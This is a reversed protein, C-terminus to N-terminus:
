FDESSSNLVYEAGLEHLMKVHEERRVVNVLPYGYERCYKIMQKGLSSAGVTHVFAKHGETLAKDVMGIVSVPNVFTSCIAEYAVEDPYVFLSDAAVIAYQAWTGNLAEAWANRAFAVKKHLLEAPM